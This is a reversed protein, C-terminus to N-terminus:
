YGKSEEPVGGRQFAEAAARADKALRGNAIRRVWWPLTRVFGGAAVALVYAKACKEFLEANLALRRPTTGLCLPTGHLLIANGGAQLAAPLDRGHAIAPPIPGIHRAQEDFVQPLVGGFQALLAGFPGGGWAIAGVDGRARYLTAHVAEAESAAAGQWDAFVPEAGDAGGFWMAARVSCRVSLTGDAKGLLGKVALRDRAEIWQKKFVGPDIV